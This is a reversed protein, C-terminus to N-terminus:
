DLRYVRTLVSHFVWNSIAVSGGLFSFKGHSVLPTFLPTVIPEWGGSLYNQLKSCPPHSGAVMCHPWLWLRQRDLELQFLMVTLEHQHYRAVAVKPICM